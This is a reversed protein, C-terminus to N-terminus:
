SIRDFMERTIEYLAEEGSFFRRLEEAARLSM